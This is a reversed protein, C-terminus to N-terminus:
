RCTTFVLKFFHKVSVSAYTSEKQSVFALCLCVFSDIDDDLEDAFPSVALSGVSTTQFLPTAIFIVKPRRSFPTPGVNFLDVLM